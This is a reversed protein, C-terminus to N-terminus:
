GTRNPRPAPATARTRVTAGGPDHKDYGLHGSIEEELATELATKTLGSLIGGPGVLDM